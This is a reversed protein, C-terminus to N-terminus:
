GEWSEPAAAAEDDARWDRLTADFATTFAFWEADDPERDLLPLLAAASVVLEEGAIGEAWAETALATGYRAVIALQEQHHDPNMNTSM